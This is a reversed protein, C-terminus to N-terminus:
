LRAKWIKWCFYLFRRPTEIVPVWLILQCYTPFSDLVTSKRVGARFMNKLLFTQSEFDQLSYDHKPIRGKATLIKAFILVILFHLITRFSKKLKKPYLDTTTWQDLPTFTFHAVPLLKFLVLLGVQFFYLLWRTLLKLKRKARRIRLSRPPTWDILKLIM